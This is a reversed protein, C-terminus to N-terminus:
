DVETSVEAQCQWALVEADDRARWQGRDKAFADKIAIAQLRVPEKELNLITSEM